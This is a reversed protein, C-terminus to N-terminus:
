VAADTAVPYMDKIKVRVGVNGEGDVYDLTCLLKKDGKKQDAEVTGQTCARVGDIDTDIKFRDGQKWLRKM